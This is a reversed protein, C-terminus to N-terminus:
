SLGAPGGGETAVDLPAIVAPVGADPIVRAGIAMAGAALREGPRFPDVVALGLEEGYKWTTKVRGSATAAMAAWFL